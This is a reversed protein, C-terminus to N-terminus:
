GHQNDDIQYGGAFQQITNPALRMWRTPLTIAIPINTTVSLKINVARPTIAGSTPPNGTSARSPLKETFSATRKTGASHPSRSATRVSRESGRLRHGGAGVLTGVPAAPKLLPDMGTSRFINRRLAM